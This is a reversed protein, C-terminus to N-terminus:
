IWPSFWIADLCCKRSKRVCFGPSMNSPSLKVSTSKFVRKVDFENNPSACFIYISFKYELLGELSFFAMISYRSDFFGILRTIQSCLATIVFLWFLFKSIGFYKNAKQFLGLM